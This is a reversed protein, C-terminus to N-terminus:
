EPEEWVVATAGSIEVVRVRAGAPIGHHPDFSRASWEGGNLKVRGGDGNIATTVLASTGVLAAPGMKMVGRGLLHRRATPRVVLLGLLSVAVAAGVQVAPPAGFGATIAGAAAGGGFMILVLDLSLSEAGALVGAAILWILWTPVGGDHCLDHWGSPPRHVVEV